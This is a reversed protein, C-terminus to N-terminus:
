RRPLGLLYDLVDGFPLEGAVEDPCSNCSISEPPDGGEFSASGMVVGRTQDVVTVDCDFKLAATGSDYHRTSAPECGLWVVTRVQEPTSARLEAPLSFHLDAVRGSEVERWDQSNLIDYGLRNIVVVKGTLYAGSEDREGPIEASFDAFATKVGKVAVSEQVHTVVAFVLIVAAVIGGFRLIGNVLRSPHTDAFSSYLFTGLIAVLLGVGGFFSLLVWIDGEDLNTPARSIFFAEVAGAGVLIAGYFLAIHPKLGIGDARTRMSRDLGEHKSSVTIM